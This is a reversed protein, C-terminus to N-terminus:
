KHPDVDFSYLVEKFSSRTDMCHDINTSFISNHREKAKWLPHTQQLGWHTKWLSFMPPFILLLHHASLFPMMYVLLFLIFLVIYCPQELTVMSAGRSCSHCEAGPKSRVARTNASSRNWYAYLCVSTGVKCPNSASDYPRSYCSAQKYSVRCM